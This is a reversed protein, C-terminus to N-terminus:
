SKFWDVIEGILELISETQPDIGGSIMELTEVDLAKMTMEQNNKM